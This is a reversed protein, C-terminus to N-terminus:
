IYRLLDIKCKATIANYAITTGAVQMMPIDNAGDGVVAVQKPTIKMEKCLQLLIEKKRNGDIIEGKIQGSLVMEGRRNGKGAKQCIEPNSTFIHTFGFRKQLAVGFCNFNGTIIATVIKQENLYEMLEELGEAVPVSIAIEELVGVNTGKLMAVRKRFSEEFDIEGRMTIETIKSIEEAKGIHAAISDITELKTITSDMDFCILKVGSLINGGSVSCHPNDTIVTCLGNERADILASRIADLKDTKPYVINLFPQQM